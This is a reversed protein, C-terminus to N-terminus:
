YEDNDDEEEDDPRQFANDLTSKVASKFRSWISRRNSGDDSVIDGDRGDDDNEEGKEDEKDTDQDTHPNSIVPETKKQTIDEEQPQPQTAQKQLVGVPTFGKQVGKLLLSIVLSLNPSAVKELSESTLGFEACAVRTEIGTINQFLEEIDKLNATGGTLVIGAPLRKAFNAEKIENWVYEAIDTLRAEIIAVLNHSQIPLLNRTGKQINITLNSTRGVLASGHAKKLKEIAAFPIQGAYSHLDTDISFGGIPISVMYCLAGGRYIAVDTVESGIDVIAVGEEKEDTTVMSEGIVAASAFIGQINIKADRFIRRFREEANRECLIYNYTSTLKKSYSGVPNKMEVGKDNTYCVPFLDMINENDDAKVDHMRNSLNLVDERSICNDKDDVFVYDTYRACRVFKGSISVYADTIAVGTLQEAKERATRLAKGAMHNNSILGAAVGECPETVICEINIAGGDIVTGVAIKIESSGVDIAVIYNKM